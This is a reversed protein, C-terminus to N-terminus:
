KKAAKPPVLADKAAKALRFKAVNCAKKKIMEGTQPNRVTRAAQKKILLKGLGPIVWGKENQKAGEYALAILKAYIAEAQKKTVEGAEALAAMIGSKTTPVPTVKKAM